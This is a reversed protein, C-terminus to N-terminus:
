GTEGVRPGVAGESWVLAPNVTALKCGRGQMWRRYEAVDLQSVAATKRMGHLLVSLRAATPSSAKRRCAAPAFAPRSRKWSQRGNGSSCRACM